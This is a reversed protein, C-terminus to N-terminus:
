SLLACVYALQPMKISAHSAGKHLLPVALKCNSPLGLQGTLLAMGMRQIMMLM